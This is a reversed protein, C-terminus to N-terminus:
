KQYALQVEDAYKVNVEGEISRGHYDRGAECDSKMLNRLKEFM